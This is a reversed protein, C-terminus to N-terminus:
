PLVELRRTVMSSLVLPSESPRGSTLALRIKVRYISGLNNTTVSGSCQTSGDALTAITQDLLVNFINYYCFNVSTVTIIGVEQVATLNRATTTSASTISEVLRGGSVEYVIYDMPNSVSVGSGSIVDAWFGMRAAEAAVYIATNGPTGQGALRIRRAMWEMANRGHQTVGVRHQGTAWSISMARTSAFLGSAVIGLITLMVLLEALTLGQQGLRARRVARQIRV